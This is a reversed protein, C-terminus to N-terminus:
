ARRGAAGAARARAATMRHMATPNAAFFQAVSTLTMLEGMRSIANIVVNAYMTSHLRSAYRMIADGNKLTMANACVYAAILQADKQDSVYATKPNAIIVEVRPVEGFLKITAMFQAANESGILGATLATFIRVRTPDDDYDVIDANSEHQSERESRSDDGDEPDRIMMVDLLNAVAELSRPTLFPMAPDSGMGAQLTEQNQEAYAAVVAHWPRRVFEGEDDVLPYRLPDIFDGPMTAAGSKGQGFLKLAEIEFNVNATCVRNTIFALAKGVGSQDKARNSAAWVAFGPPLFHTASRGEDLLPALAKRVEPDAQMFEDLLILGDRVCLRQGTFPCFVMSEPFIAQGNVDRKVLRTVVNGTNPDVTGAPDAIFVGQLMFAAPRTYYAVKESENARTPHDTPHTLTDFLVYGVTETPGASAGNFVGYGFPVGPRRRAQEQAMSRVAQTKGMGPPSVFHMPMIRGKSNYANLMCTSAMLIDGLSLSNLATDTSIAM